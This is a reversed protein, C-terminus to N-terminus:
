IGGGQRATDSEACAAATKAKLHACLRDYDDRAAPHGPLAERLATLVRRQVVDAPEALRYYVWKGKRRGSVWGSNDLYALHRSVRSQPLGLAA